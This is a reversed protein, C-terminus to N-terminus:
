PLPTHLDISSDSESGDGELEKEMRLEEDTDLEGLGEEALMDSTVSVGQLGDDSKDKWSSPPGALSTTRSRVRVSSPSPAASSRRKPRPTRALITGIDPSDPRKIDAGTRPQRRTPSEGMKKSLSIEPSSLAPSIPADRKIPTPNSPTRKRPASGFVAGELSVEPAATEVEEDGALRVAM